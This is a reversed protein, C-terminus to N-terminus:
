LLHVGSGWSYYDFLLFAFFLRSVVEPQEVNYTIFNDWM